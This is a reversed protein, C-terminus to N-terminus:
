LTTDIFIIKPDDFMFRDTNIIYGSGETHITSNIYVTDTELEYIVKLELICKQGTISRTNNSSTKTQNTGIENNTQFIILNNVPDYIISQQKKTSVQAKNQVPM